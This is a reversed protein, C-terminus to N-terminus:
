VEMLWLPQKIAPTVDNGGPGGPLNNLISNPYTKVCSVLFLVILLIFFLPYLLWTKKM